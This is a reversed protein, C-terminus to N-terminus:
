GGWHTQRGKQKSSSWSQICYKCLLLLIGMSMMGIGAPGMGVNSAGLRDEDDYIDMNNTVLSTDEGYIGTTSSLVCLNDDCDCAIFQIYQPLECARNYNDKVLIPIQFPGPSLLQETM